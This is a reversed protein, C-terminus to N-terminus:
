AGAFGESMKAFREIKEAQGQTITINVIPASNAERGRFGFCELNFKAADFQIKSLRPDIQPVVVSKGMPGEVVEYKQEIDRLEMVKNASQVLNETFIREADRISNERMLAMRAKHTTMEDNQKQILELRAAEVEATVVSKKRTRKKATKGM